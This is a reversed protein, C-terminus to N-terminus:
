RGAAVASQAAESQKLYYDKLVYYAKKKVGEESVLGKRNYTDQVGNLQRYPSRFDKLIWPSLGQVSESKELMSLQARYVKEQYEETWM